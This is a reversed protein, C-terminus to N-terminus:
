CVPPFLASFVESQHNLLTSFHGEEPYSTATCGALKGAMARAMGIPVNTDRVGHWLFLPRFALDELRFGWDRGYLRGEYVAGRVGQHYTERASAALGEVMGPALLAERDPKVMRRMAKTVAKRAREEDRFSRATGSLLPTLLWPSRHALFLVLRNQRSMGATGLPLPGIGSVIGCSILREPLQAACALAYPAGGSIGLVAFRDIGLRETLAVLDAPWDFLSRREQFSSRGYGPRDLSIVRVQAQAAHASLVAAELRSGPYGHCYVLVQGEVSGYEAFGLTRGDPLPMTQETKLVADPHQM